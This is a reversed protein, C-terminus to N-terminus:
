LLKMDKEQVLLSDRYGRMRKMEKELPEDFDIKCWVM